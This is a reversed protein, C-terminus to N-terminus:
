NLANADSNLIHRREIYYRLVVGELEAPSLYNRLTDRIVRPSLNRFGSIYSAPFKDPLGVM